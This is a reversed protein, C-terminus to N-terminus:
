IPPTQAVDTAQGCALRTNAVLCPGPPAVGMQPRGASWCSEVARRERHLCGRGIWIPRDASEDDPHLAALGGSGPSCGGRSAPLDVEEAGSYCGCSRGPPVDRLMMTQRGFRVVVRRAANKVKEGTHRYGQSSLHSDAKLGKSKRVRVVASHRAAAPQAIAQRGATGRACPTGPLRGPCGQGANM